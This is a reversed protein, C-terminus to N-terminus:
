DEHQKLTLQVYLKIKTKFKSWKLFPHRSPCLPISLPLCQQLLSSLSLLVLLLTPHSSSLYFKLLMQETGKNFPSAPCRVRLLFSVLVLPSLSPWQPSPLTQSPYLAAQLLLPQARFKWTTNDVSETQQTDPSQIEHPGKSTSRPAKQAPFFSILKQTWICLSNM